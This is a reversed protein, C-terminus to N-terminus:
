AGEDTADIRVPAEGDVITAGQCPRPPVRHPVVLRADPLGLEM